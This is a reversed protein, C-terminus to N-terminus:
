FGTRGDLLERTADAHGAHRATEEVLHVAVWRLDLGRRTAIPHKCPAALSGVDRLVRNTATARQRYADVIAKTTV